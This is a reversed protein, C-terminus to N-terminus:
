RSLTFGESVHDRLRTDAILEVFDPRYNDTEFRFAFCPVGNAKVPYFRAWRPAWASDLGARRDVLDRVEARYYGWTWDFKTTCNLSGPVPTIGLIDEIEGIRRNGAWTFAATAGGTGDKAQANSQVEALAKPTCSWVERTPVHLAAGVYEVEFYKSAASLIEDKRYPHCVNMRIVPDDDSTPSEWFLVGATHRWLWFWVPEHKGCNNFIHHYVSLVLVCDFRGYEHWQKGINIKRFEASPLHLKNYAILDVPVGKVSRNRDLGFVKFAGLRLAERCWWGHDCGVDLVTKGELDPLPVARRKAAM